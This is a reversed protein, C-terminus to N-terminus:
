ARVLRVMGMGGSMGRMLADIVGFRKQGGNTQPAYVTTIPGVTRQQVAQAAVDEFLAGSMARIAAECCAARLNAHVPDIKDAPVSYAALLYQTGRRLFQEKAATNGFWQHGMSSMYADADGVSVLSDYGAAPAVTLAM